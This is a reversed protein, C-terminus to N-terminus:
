KIHLEVQASGGIVASGQSCVIGKTGANMNPCWAISIHTSYNSFTVQNINGDIIIQTQAEPNVKAKVTVIKKVGKGLVESCIRSLAMGNEDTEAQRILLNGGNSSFKVVKGSLPKGKEDTVKAVIFATSKGDAPLVEPYAGVTIIIGNEKATSKPNKKANSIAKAAIEQEFAKRAVEPDKLVAEKASKVKSGSVKSASSDKGTEGKEGERESVKQNEELPKKETESSTGEKGKAEEQSEEIQPLSITVSIQDFSSLPSLSPELPEFFSHASLTLNIPLSPQLIESADFLGAFLWVFSNTESDFFPEELLPFTPVLLGESIVFFDSLQYNQSLEFPLIVAVLIPITPESFTSTEPLIFFTFPQPSPSNDNSQQSFPRVLFPFATLMIATVV